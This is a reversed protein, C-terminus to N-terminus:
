WKELGLHKILANQLRTATQKPLEGAKNIPLFPRAPITVKHNRGAKGGFQHIAAYELNTGVSVGKAHTKKTISMALTGTDQLIRAGLKKQALKVRTTAPSHAKWKSGFPSSQKEFARSSESQLISGARAFFPALGANQSKKVLANFNHCLEKLSISNMKVGM